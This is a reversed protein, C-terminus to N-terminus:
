DGIKARGTRIWQNMSKGLRMQVYVWLKWAIFVPTFLLAQYVKAPSRNLVLGCFVYFGLLGIVALWIVPLWLPAYGALHLSTASLALSAVMGLMVTLPPILLDAAMDLCLASRQRLGKALLRPFWERVMARRGGEWRIRQTTAEKTGTAMQAFVKARPAFRVPIKELCLNFGYEMDEVVSYANWGFRKVVGRSFCMGNGKLGVSFGFLTRGLPRLLHVAALAAFMLATRWNEGPNLVDYHAQIAQAGRALPADMEQLFNESVLTDADLVVFGDYAPSKELLRKFAYDLAYGKGRLEDNHREIVTAGAGRALEATDDTCNDAVVILEYLDSPYDVRGFDKVVNEINLAENHAPFIVAFRSRCLGKTPRRLSAVIAAVSLAFLYAAMAAGGAALILNTLFLIKM